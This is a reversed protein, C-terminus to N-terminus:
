SPPPTNMGGWGEAPADSIIFYSLKNSRIAVALPKLGESHQPHNSPKLQSPGQPPLSVPRTPSIFLTTIALSLSTPDFIYTPCM